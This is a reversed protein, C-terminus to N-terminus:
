EGEEVINKLVLTLNDGDFSSDITIVIDSGEGETTYEVPVIETSDLDGTVVTVIGALNAPLSALAAESLGSLDLVFDTQSVSFAQGSELMETLEEETKPLGGANANMSLIAPSFSDATAKESKLFLDMDYPYSMKIGGVM